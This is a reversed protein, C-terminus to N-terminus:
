DAFLVGNGSLNDVPLKGLERGTSAEIVSVMKSASGVALVLKRDRTLFLSHPGSSIPTSWALKGPSAWSELVQSSLGVALFGDGPMSKLEGYSGAGATSPLAEATTTAFRALGPRGEVALTLVNPSYLAGSVLGGLRFQALLAGSSPELVTLGDKQRVLLTGEVVELGMPEGGPLPYVSEIKSTSLSYALVSKLSRSLLFLRDGTPSFGMSVVDSLLPDTGASAESFGPLNWFTLRDGQLSALVTGSPHGALLPVGKGQLEVSRTLRITGLDLVEIKGPAPLALGDARAPSLWALSTLGALLLRFFAQRLKPGTWFYDTCQACRTMGELQAWNYM